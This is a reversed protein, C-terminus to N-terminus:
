THRVRTTGWLFRESKMPQMVDAGRNRLHSLSGLTRQELARPISCFSSAQSKLRPVRSMFHSTDEPIDYVFVRGISRCARRASGLRSHYRGDYTFTHTPMGRTPDLAMSTPELAVLAQKDM